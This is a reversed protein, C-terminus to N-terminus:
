HHANAPRIQRQRVGNGGYTSSSSVIFALTLIIGLVSKNMKHDRRKEMLLWIVM